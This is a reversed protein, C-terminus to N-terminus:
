LRRPNAVSSDQTLLPRGGVNINVSNIVADATEVFKIGARSGNPQHICTNTIESGDAENLIIAAGDAAGGTITVNDVRTWHPKPPTRQDARWAIAGPHGRRIAPVGDVDVRITTDTITLSRAQPGQEIAAQCHRDNHTDRVTVECNRVECGAPKAPFDDSSLYKGQEIIIPRTNFGAETSEIEPGYKSHDILFESNEVFSGAGSIRVGAVNNNEFYSDSVQVNGPCRSTYMANNGFERLDVNVAKLTGKHNGGTWIGIRGDGGSNSDNDYRDMYGGKKATVSQLVGVGDTDGIAVNFAHGTLGGRGLLEVDEVHFHTQCHLLFGAWDAARVDVDINKLLVDDVDLGYLINGAFESDLVFTAGDEGVIGVSDQDLEVRNSLRYTGEPVRLLTGSEINNRLVDDFSKKGTPDAELEEVVDIERDFAIGNIKGPQTSPAQNQEPTNSPTSVPSTATSDDTASDQSNRNGSGALGTAVAAAAALVARRSMPGDTQKVM